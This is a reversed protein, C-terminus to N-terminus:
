FPIGDDIVIEEPGPRPMTYGGLAKLVFFDCGQNENALRRAENKASEVTGHRYTPARGSPSYVMWFEGIVKSM